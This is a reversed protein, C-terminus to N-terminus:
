TSVQLLPNGPLTGPELVEAWTVTPTAGVTVSVAFGVIMLSSLFLPEVSVQLLVLAVEQAAEPEHLPVFGRLPVKEVPLIREVL